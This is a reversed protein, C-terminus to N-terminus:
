TISLTPRLPALEEMSMDFFAVPESDLDKTGASATTWCSEGFGLAIWQEGSSWLCREDDGRRRLVECGDDDAVLGAGCAVPEVGAAVGM